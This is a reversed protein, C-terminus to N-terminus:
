TFHLQRRAFNDGGAGIAEHGTAGTLATRGGLQSGFLAMSHRRALTRISTRRPIPQWTPLQLSMHALM